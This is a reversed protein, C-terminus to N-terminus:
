DDNSVIRRLKVLSNSNKLYNKIGKANREKFYRKVALVLDDKSKDAHENLYSIGSNKILVYPKIDETDVISLSEQYNEKQNRACNNNSNYNSNTNHNNMKNKNPKNKQKTTKSLSNENSIECFLAKSKTNIHNGFRFDSMPHQTAQFLSCQNKLKVKKEFFKIKEPKGYQDGSNQVFLNINSCERIPKTLPKLIRLSSKLLDTLPLEFKLKNSSVYNEEKKFIRISKNNNSISFSKNDSNIINKITKERRIKVDNQNFSMNTNNNNSNSNFFDIKSTFASFFNSQSSKNNEIKRLIIKKKKNSNSSLFENKQIQLSRQSSSGFCSKSENLNNLFSIENLNNSLSCKNQVQNLKSSIYGLLNNSRENQKQNESFDHQESDV